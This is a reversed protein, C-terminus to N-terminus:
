RNRGERNLLHEPFLDSAVGILLYEEFALRTEGYDKWISSRGPGWIAAWFRVNGRLRIHDGNIDFLEDKWDVYKPSRKSEPHGPLTVASLDGIHYAYNYGWRGFKGNGSVLDSINASLNQERKGFVEAKGIYLPIIGDEGQRLMLYLIGNNKVAGSAHEAVLNKGLGRMLQEMENSRVVVMRNNRGHGMTQVRGNVVAFLPVSDELIRNTQVFEDWLRRKTGNYAM